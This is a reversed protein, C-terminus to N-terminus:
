LDLANHSQIENFKRKQANLLKLLEANDLPYQGKHIM